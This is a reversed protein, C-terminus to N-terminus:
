ESTVPQVDVTLTQKPARKRPGLAALIASVAGGKAKIELEETKPVMFENFEYVMATLREMEFSLNRDLVGGDLQEQYLAQTVRNTQAILVVRVASVLDATSSFTNTLVFYCSKGEQFFGCRDQVYCNHTAAGSAYFTGTSTQIDLVDRLPGSQVKIIPDPQHQEQVGEFHAKRILAPQCMSFFRIRELQNKFSALRLSHGGSWDEPVFPLHLKSAYEQFRGLIRMDVQEVRYSNRASGGSGDSDFLGALFGKRYAPDTLEKTLVAHLKELSALARCEVKEM